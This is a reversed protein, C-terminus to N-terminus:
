SLGLTRSGLKVRKLYERQDADIGGIRVFEGHSISQSNVILDVVEPELTMEQETM